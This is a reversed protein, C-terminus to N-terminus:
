RGFRAKVTLVMCHLRLTRATRQSTACGCTYSSLKKKKSTVDRRWAADQAHQRQYVNKAYEIGASNQKQKPQSYASKMWSSLKSWTSTNTRTITWRVTARIIIPSNSLSTLSGKKPLKVYVDRPACNGAAIYPTSYKLPTRVRCPIIKLVTNGCLNITLFM